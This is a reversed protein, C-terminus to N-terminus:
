EDTFIIGDEEDRNSISLDNVSPLLGADRFADAFAECRREVTEEFEDFEQLREVRLSLANRGDNEEASIALAPYKWVAYFFFDSLDNILERQEDDVSDIQTLRYLVREILDTGDTVVPQTQSLEDSASLALHLDSILYRIEQETSPDLVMDSGGEGFDGLTTSEDRNDLIEDVEALKERIETSTLYLDAYEEPAFAEYFDELFEYRDTYWIKRLNYDGFFTESAFFDVYEDPIDDDDATEARLEGFETRTESNAELDTPGTPETPGTPFASHAPESSHGIATKAGAIYWSYTLDLDFEDIAFFTLKEAELATLERDRSDLVRDLAEDIAADIEARLQREEDFSDDDSSPVSM